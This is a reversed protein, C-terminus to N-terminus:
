ATGGQSVQGSDEALAQVAQVFVRARHEYNDFMDFSACAPSLLVADGAQAQRRALDVAHHMDRADFLNV